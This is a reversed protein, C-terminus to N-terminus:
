GCTGSVRPSDRWGSHMCIVTGARMRFDVSLPCDQNGVFYSGLQLCWSGLRFGEKRRGRIWYWGRIALSLLGCKSRTKWCSHEYQRPVTGDGSFLSDETLAPTIDSFPFNLLRGGTNNMQFSEVAHQTASPGGFNSICSVHLTNKLAENVKVNRFKNFFFFFLM